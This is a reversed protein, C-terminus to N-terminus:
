RRLGRRRGRNERLRCRGRSRDVDADEFEFSQGAMEDDYAAAVDAEFEALDEAAESAFDGDDFFGGAEDRAFVFVDGCGDFGEEFFLADRHAQVGLADMELRASVVYGDADFQSSSVGVADAGVDEEGDAAAGVGVVEAEVAGADLVVLVAEDGYVVLEAGVDGADPGEAVAVSAAGEGVGGVVVVFDYGGVQEVVVGAADGVADEDVGEVGVRGEAADAEGFVFDAFGAFGGEDAGAGHGADAAGDFLAFGFAEDFDEDVGFVFCIRPAEM